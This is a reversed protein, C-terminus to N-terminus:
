PESESSSQSSSSESRSQESSSRSQQNVSDDESDCDRDSIESLGLQRTEQTFDMRESNSDSEVCSDEEDSDIIKAQGVYEIHTM